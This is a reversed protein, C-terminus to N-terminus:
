LATVAGLRELSHPPVHDTRDAWNGSVLSTNRPRSHDVPM